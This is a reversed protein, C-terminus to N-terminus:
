MMGVSRTPTRYRRNVERWRRVEEMIRSLITAFKLNKSSFSVSVCGRRKKGADRSWGNGDPQISYTCPLSQACLLDAHIRRACHFLKEGINM